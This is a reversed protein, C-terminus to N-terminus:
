SNTVHNLIEKKALERYEKPNLQAALIYEDVMYFGSNRRDQAITILYKAL